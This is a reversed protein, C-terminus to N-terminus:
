THDCNPLALWSVSEKKELLEFTVPLKKKSVHQCSESAVPCCECNCQKQTCASKDAFSASFSLWSRRAWCSRWLSTLLSFTGLVELSPQVDTCTSRYGQEGSQSSKSRGAIM